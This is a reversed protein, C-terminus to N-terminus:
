EMTEPLYDIAVLLDEWLPVPMAAAIDQKFPSVLGNVTYSVNVPMLVVAACAADLALKLRDRQDGSVKRRQDEIEAIADGLSRRLADIEAKQRLLQDTMSPFQSTRPMAEREPEKALERLRDLDITM